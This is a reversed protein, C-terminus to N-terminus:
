AEPAKRRAEAELARYLREGYRGSLASLEAEVALIAGHLDRWAPASDALRVARGSHIAALLGSLNQGARRVQRRVGEIRASDADSLVPTGESSARILRRVVEAKPLNLRVATRDLRAADAPSLETRLRAKSRATKRGARM